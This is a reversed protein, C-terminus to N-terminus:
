MREPQRESNSALKGATQTARLCYRNPDYEIKAGKSLVDGSVAVGTKSQRGAEQVWDMGFLKQRVKRIRSLMGM